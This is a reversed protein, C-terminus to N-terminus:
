KLSLKALYDYHDGEEVVEFDFGFMNAYMAFSQQDLYLWNFWEGREDKYEMQFNVEGYYSANLDIDFSGDENEYLFRLDSTDILVQGKERLLGKLKLFFVPLNEITKAIGTGNMLILITDYKESDYRYFDEQTVNKVGREQMVQVCNKSIDIARVNLGKNQLYLAHSGAAGGVDLVKGRCLGLARKELVPMEKFERYLYSTLIVDDECIDSHVVIDEAVGNKWFDLVARGLPDKMMDSIKKM